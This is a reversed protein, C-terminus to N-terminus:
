LHTKRLFSNIQETALNTMTLTTKISKTTQTKKTNKQNNHTKTTLVVHLCVAFHNALYIEGPFHRCITFM